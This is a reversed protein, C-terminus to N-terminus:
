CWSVIPLHFLTEFFDDSLMFLVLEHFICYVYHQCESEKKRFIWLFFFWMDISAMTQLHETLFTNKFIECFKCSFMQPLIDVKNFLAQLM